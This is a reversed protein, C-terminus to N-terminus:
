THENIRIQQLIVFHPSSDSRPIVVETRCWCVDHTDGTSYDGVELAGLDDMGLLENFNDEVCSRYVLAEGRTALPHDERLAPNRRVCV